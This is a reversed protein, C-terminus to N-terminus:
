DRLVEPISYYGKMLAYDGACYNLLAIRAARDMRLVMPKQDGKQHHGIEFKQGTLAEIQAAFNVVKGIKVVDTFYSLDHGLFKTFPDTHHRISKSLIRYKELNCLFASRTPNPPVGLARALDMDIRGESLEYERMVRHQFASIIRQVPDRIIAIRSYDKYREHSIQYFSRTSLSKDHIGSRGNPKPQSQFPKGHELQYFAHKMSTSATKPVPFYAIKFQSNEVARM